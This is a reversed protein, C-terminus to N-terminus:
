VDAAGFTTALRRRLDDLLEGTARLPKGGSPSGLRKLIPGALGRLGADPRESGTTASPSRSIPVGAGARHVALRQQSSGFKPRTGGTATRAAPGELEVPSTPRSPRPRRQPRHRRTMNLEILEWRIPRPKLQPYADPDGRDSWMPSASRMPQSRATRASDPDPALALSLDAGMM